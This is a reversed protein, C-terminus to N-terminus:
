RSLEVRARPASLSLPMAAGSLLAVKGTARERMGLFTESKSRGRLRPSRASEPRSPGFRLRRRMLSGKKLEIM